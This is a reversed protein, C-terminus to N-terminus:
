RSNQVMVNSGYNQLMNEPSKIQKELSQPGTDFVTTKAVCATTARPAAIPRALGLSAAEFTPLAALKVALPTVGANLLECPFTPTIVKSKQARCIM